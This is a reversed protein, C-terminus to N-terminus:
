DLTYTEYPHCCPTGRSVHLRREQPEIVISCVTEWFGHAPHDNAHRCISKPHGQHDRLMEMVDVVAPQHSHNALLENIRRIRSHSDILEPFQENYAAIDAHLCHNSHALSQTDAPRLLHVEDITVELNAPGQPTAMMINVPIAREARNVADFAEDLNTAEYIGRLTFYHPVGAYRSPAPLTNVCCGIGADNFGMYSILGAQTCCIFAPKGAPRRTLIINFEDLAPDADWNQAVIDATTIGDRISLSTCGSDADPQLQNRVQLLMLEDFTVGAADATGRLEETMDPNYEAAFEGSKRAVAIANERSIATTRHIHGMVMECFGRIEERAAEGIQTGLERPTGSV